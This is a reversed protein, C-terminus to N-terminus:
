SLVYCPSFARLLNNLSPEPSPSLLEEKPIRGEREVHGLNRSVPGAENARKKTKACQMVPSPAWSHSQYLFPLIRPCFLVEDLFQALTPVRQSVARPEFGLGAM